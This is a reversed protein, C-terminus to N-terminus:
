ELCLSFTECPLYLVQGRRRGARLTLAEAHLSSYDVCLHDALWVLEVSIRHLVHIPRELQSRVKPGHILPILLLQRRCFCRRGRSEARREATVPLARLVCNYQMSTIVVAPAANSLHWLAPTFSPNSAHLCNTISHSGLSRVLNTPSKIFTSDYRNLSSM